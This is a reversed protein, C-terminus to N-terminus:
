SKNILNNSWKQNWKFASLKFMAGFVPKKRSFTAQRLWILRTVPPPRRQSALAANSTLQLLSVCNSQWHNRTHVKWTTLTNCNLRSQTSIEVDRSKENLRSNVNHSDVPKLERSDINIKCIELWTALIRITISSILYECFRNDSSNFLEARVIRYIRNWM